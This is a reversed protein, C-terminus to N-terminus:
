PLEVDRDAFMHMIMNASQEPTKDTFDMFYSFGCKEGVPEKESDQYVVLTSVHTPTIKNATSYLKRM